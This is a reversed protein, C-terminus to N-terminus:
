DPQKLDEIEQKSIKIINKEDPKEIDLSGYGIYRIKNQDYGKDILCKSIKYAYINALEWNYEYDLKDNCFVEILITTNNLKTITEDLLQCGKLSIDKKDFVDQIPLIVSCFARNFSLYLVFILALFKRM